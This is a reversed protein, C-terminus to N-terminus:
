RSRLLAAAVGGLLMVACAALAGAVVVASTRTEAWGVLDPLRFLVVTAVVLGAVLAAAALAAVLGTEAVRDTARALATRAGERM